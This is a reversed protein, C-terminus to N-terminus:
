NLCDEFSKFRQLMVLLPWIPLNHLAKRSFHPIQMHYCFMRWSLLVSIPKLPILVQLADMQYSFHKGRVISNLVGGKM